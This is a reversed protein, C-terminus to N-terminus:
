IRAAQADPYKWAFFWKRRGFDRSGNGGLLAQGLGAVMRDACGIRRPTLPYVPHYLRQRHNTNSRRYRELIEPINVFRRSSKVCQKTKLQKLLPARFSLHLRAVDEYGELM